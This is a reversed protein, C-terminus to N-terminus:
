TSLLNSILLLAACSRIWVQKRNLYNHLDKNLSSCADRKLNTRYDILLKESLFRRVDCYEGKLEEERVALFM